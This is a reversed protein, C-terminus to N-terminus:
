LNEGTMMDPKAEPEPNLIAVVSRVADFLIHCALIASGVSVSVYVLRISLGAPRGFLSGSIFDAAPITQNTFRSAYDWGYWTMIGLFGILPVAMVARLLHRARAPLLQPLIELSVFEGKQYALGLLLFTMWILLYRCLEEAWILSANFGYRAVVQVIMIAVIVAMMSGAAIRMAALYADALRRIPTRSVSHAPSKKGDSM